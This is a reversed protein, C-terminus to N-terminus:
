PPTHCRPSPPKLHTAAGSGGARFGWRGPLKSAKIKRVQPHSPSSMTNTLVFPEWGVRLYRGDVIDHVSVAAMLLVM